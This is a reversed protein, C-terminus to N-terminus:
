TTFTGAGDVMGENFEGTYSEGNSLELTGKGHM